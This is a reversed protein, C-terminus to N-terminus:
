KCGQIKSNALSGYIIGERLKRDDIILINVKDGILLNESDFTFHPLDKDYLYRDKDIIVKVYPNLSILNKINQLHEVLLKPNLPNM